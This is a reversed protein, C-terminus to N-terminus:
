SSVNTRCSPWHSNASRRSMVSQVSLRGEVSNGRCPLLALLLQRSSVLTADRGAFM